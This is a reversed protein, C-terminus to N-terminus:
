RQLCTSFFLLKAKILIYIYVINHLVIDCVNELLKVVEVRRDENPFNDVNLSLDASNSTIQGENKKNSSDHHVNVEHVEEIKLSQPHDINDKNLQGLRTKMMDVFNALPVPLQTL